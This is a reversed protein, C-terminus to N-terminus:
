PSVVSDAISELADADAPALGEPVHDNTAADVQTIVGFFVSGALFSGALSPHSGDPDFVDIQPAEILALAWAQGVPAVTGGSAEAAAAYGDSLGQQMEEPTLGLDGLASNGAERAWTEFLVLDAGPTSAEIMVALDIVGQEFGEYAVIPEVSQGQIVVVDWGEALTIAVEPNAVHNAVSAGAIAISDVTWGAGAADTMAAFLGPLDNFFTYSNGIFLVRPLEPEGTDTSADTETEGTDTESSETETGTETATSTDTESSESGGLEDTGGEPAACGLVLALVLGIWRM